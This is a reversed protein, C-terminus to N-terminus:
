TGSIPSFRPYPHPPMIYHSIYPLKLASIVWLPISPTPLSNSGKTSSIELFPFKSRNCLLNFISINCIGIFELLNWYIGIFELLNWYIGIFELLNWYIGIFELLNWYIGIFELLNWYIGIFEL